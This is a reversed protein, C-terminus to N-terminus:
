EAWSAPAKEWAEAASGFGDEQVAYAIVVVTADDYASLDTEASDVTFEEFVIINDRASVVEKYAYVNEEGAVLSWGNAAMQAAITNDAAEIDEIGNDVMVFLWCDESNADVHVTPDKTYNHGPLLKYDNATRRNGSVEEGLENVPAEDLTITVNGVSFTNTVTDTKSSLYAMTGTVSAGVLLAACLALLLVKKVKKM